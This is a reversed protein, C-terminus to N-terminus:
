AVPWGDVVKIPIGGMQERVREYEGPPLRFTEDPRSVLYDYHRAHAANEGRGMDDVPYYFAEVLKHRRHGIQRVLKKLRQVPKISQGIKVIGDDFKAYYVNGPPGWPAVTWVYWRVYRGHEYEPIDDPVTVEITRDARKVQYMAAM